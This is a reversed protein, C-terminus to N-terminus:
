ASENGSPTATENGTPPVTENGSPTGTENGSPTATDTGTSTATDTETATATETETDTEGPTETEDADDGDDTQIFQSVADLVEQQSSAPDFADPFPSDGNVWNMIAAHRAEVSHISLAAGQLDPSEIYPGAGAYAAVGTNELVQGLALFDDVSEVGFVYTAETAPDGGLLEVAQTLVDVHAAEHDAVVEVYGFVAQRNEEDLSQLYEAEMFDNADFRELAERYFAHELHELTLAYNLVDIDTGEVDDFTATAEESTEDGEEQAMVLSTGGGLALLTGGALASRNLFSRRSSYQKDIQAKVSAAIREALPHPDGSQTM